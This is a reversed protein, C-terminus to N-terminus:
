KVPKVTPTNTRGPKGRGHGSLAIDNTRQTSQANQQRIQAAVADMNLTNTQGDQVIVLFRNTVKREPITAVNTVVTFTPETAVLAASTAILAIIKKM